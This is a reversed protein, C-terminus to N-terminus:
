KIYWENNCDECYQIAAEEVEIYDNHVKNSNCYPCHKIQKNGCTLCVKEGTSESVTFEKYSKLENNEITLNEITSAQNFHKEVSNSINIFKNIYSIKFDDFFTFKKALLEDVEFLYSLSAIIFLLAFLFKRM